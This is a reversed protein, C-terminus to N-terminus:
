RLDIGLHWYFRRDEVAVVAHVLDAPLRDIGVRDGKVVGRVAFVKGDTGTFAVASSPADSNGAGSAPLTVACYGIFGLVLIATTAGAWGLAVAVWHPGARAPRRM